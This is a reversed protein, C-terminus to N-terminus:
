TVSSSGTSSITTRTGSMYTPATILSRDPRRPRGSPVSASSPPSKLRTRASTGAVSSTRYATSSRAMEEPAPVNERVYARWSGMGVWM